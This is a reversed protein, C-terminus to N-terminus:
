RSESIVVEKARDNLRYSDGQLVIVEAHHLLHVGSLARCLQVFETVELEVGTAGLEEELYQGLPLLLSRDSDGAVQGEGLPAM